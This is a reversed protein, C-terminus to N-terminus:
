KMAVGHFTKGKEANEEKLLKDFEDSTMVYLKCVEDKIPHYYPYFQRIKVLMDNDIRDGRLIDLLLSRMKGHLTAHCSLCLEIEIVPKYSIHHDVIQFGIGCFTCEGLM